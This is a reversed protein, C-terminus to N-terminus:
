HVRVTSTSVIPLTGNAGALYSIPFHLSYSSTITLKVFRKREGTACTGNYDTQRVTGCQLWAEYTVNEVPVGAYDAATQRLYTYDRKVDQVAALQIARDAAKQIQFKAGICGSLDAVGTMFLMLVPALLSLEVVSTGRENGKLACYIQFPWTTMPEM